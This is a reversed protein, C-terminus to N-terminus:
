GLPGGLITKSIGAMIGEGTEHTLERYWAQTAVPDHGHTTEARKRARTVITGAREVRAIDYARLAAALDDEHQALCNMLVWADEMAQCGGQGLDPAMAHASDGLLVIRGNVLSELPEIDHIEVRAVTAPDLREILRQVPLAWGQFHKALEERYLTRENPTGTPLPVDFFFYFQDNGMPMLSVRKHDGVFQAWETLPALDPTAPVRGNWNVYGCYHRPIDQRAVLNRLRSHTGDAAILLDAERQSGDSFYATVGHETQIASECSVGLTLNHEGAAELLIRQLTTRAIPCAPQNVEIYLPELSFRTLLHGDRDSYSMTRMDGSVAAMADGLGLAKLVKVGNSWVSIASGAPTLEPVRDFLQIRHGQQQLAIAATLGGIGAGVIIIELPRM